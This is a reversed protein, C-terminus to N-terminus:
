NPAPLAVGRIDCDSGFSVTATLDFFITRHGDFYTYDGVLMQDASETGLVGIAKPTSSVAGGTPFV